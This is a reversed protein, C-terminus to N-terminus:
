PKNNQTAAYVLFKHLITAFNRNTLDPKSSLINSIFFEHYRNQPEHNKVGQMKKLPHLITDCIERNYFTRCTISKKVALHQTAPGLLPDIMM